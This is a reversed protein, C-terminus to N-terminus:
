LRPRRGPLSQQPADELDPPAAAVHHQALQGQPPPGDLGLSGRTLPGPEKVALRAEVQDEERWRGGRRKWAAGGLSRREWRGSAM